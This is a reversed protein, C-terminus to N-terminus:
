VIEGVVVGSCSDTSARTVSKLVNVEGRVRLVGLFAFVLAEKFEIIQRPPIIVKVADGLKQCLMSMLVPNLTGGGTALLNQNRKKEPIAVAIENCISECFTRTRNHLPISERDLLEQFMQEFGERALAFRANRQRDYAKSLDRLLTKDVEGQEALKGGKDFTIGAKAALYNLGMNAFCVDFAVRRGKEEMSLNAIGGLNLCVDYSGFLTRDGMPVLPAGQGGLNVDLSRFDCVVPMGTSAHISNGNGLQLTYHRSPEHFITHGHSAILDINKIKESEIFRKCSEGIFRGFLSDLALLEVSSIFPANSLKDKWKKSYPLTVAALIEFKWERKKQFRCCAIDLGDMSTGSMVGIVKYSDKLKTMM